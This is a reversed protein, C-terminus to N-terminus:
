EVPSLMHPVAMTVVAHQFAIREQTVDLALCM